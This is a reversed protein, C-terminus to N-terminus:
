RRSKQRMLKLTQGPEIPVPSLGAFSGPRPTRERAADSSGNGRNWQARALGLNRFARHVAREATMRVCDRKNTASLSRSAIVVIMWKKFRKIGRYRSKGLTLRLTAPCQSM